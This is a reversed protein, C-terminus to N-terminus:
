HSIKYEDINRTEVEKLYSELQEEINPTTYPGEHKELLEQIKVQSRSILDQKGESLWKSRSLRKALEPVFLEKRVNKSTHKIRMFGIGKSVVSKIENLAITNENINVGEQARSAIGALEDDIVLLELSETLGYEYLGACTIYNIGAYTSNLLSAMREAGCQLDFQISNTMNGSARSPINYFRALQAAGTTMLGMEIAGWAPIGTLPDMPSNVAGYFVPVGPNIMEALVITALVEANTQTLLGGITIPATLGGIAAPAVIVPQLYKAFVFLGDILIEPLLLPSIPNFFAIIRPNKMLEENGGAIISIIEMMDRSMREGRCGNGIPKKSNRAWERLFECHLSIYPIDTPWVDLHSSTIYKLQDIIKFHKIMDEVRSERPHDPDNENYIKTPSGVTAFITSKTSVEIKFTGDPGYVDFSSPAKKIYDMIISETFKVFHSDTDVECGKEKLLQRAKESEIRVGTTAMLDMTADHISQTEDNSLVEIRNLKINM